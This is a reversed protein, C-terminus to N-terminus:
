RLKPDRKTTQSYVFGRWQRSGGSGKADEIQYEM